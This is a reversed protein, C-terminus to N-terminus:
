LCTVAAAALMSAHCSPTFDCLLDCFSDNECAEKATKYVRAVCELYTEGGGISPRSIVNRIRYGMASTKPTFEIEMIEEKGSSWVTSTGGTITDYSTLDEYFATFKGDSKRYVWIQAESSDDIGVIAYGTGNADENDEIADFDDKSLSSSTIGYNAVLLDFEASAIFADYDGQATRNVSQNSAANDDSINSDNSCSSFIIALAITLFFNTKM